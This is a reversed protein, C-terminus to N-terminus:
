NTQNVKGFEFYIGTPVSLKPKISIQPVSPTTEKADYFEEVQIVEDNEKNKSALFPCEWKYLSRAVFVAVGTALTICIVNKNLYM